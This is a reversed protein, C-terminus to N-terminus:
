PMWIDDILANLETSLQEEVAPWDALLRDHPLTYPALLAPDPLPRASRPPM